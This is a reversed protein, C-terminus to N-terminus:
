QARMGLEADLGIIPGFRLKNGTVASNVGIVNGQADFVPGGSQGPHLIGGTAEILFDSNSLVRSFTCLLAGNYPYGCALILVPTEPAHMHLFSGTFDPKYNAFLSFDGRLLALDRNPDILAVKAKVGLFSEDKDLVLVEKKELNQVCHAATLAYYADIVVGSCFAEVTQLRVIGPYIPKTSLHQGFGGEILGYNIEVEEAGISRPGILACSVYLGCTLLIAYSILRKM